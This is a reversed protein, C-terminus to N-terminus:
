YIGPVHEFARILATVGDAREVDVIHLDDLADHFARCSFFRGDDELHGRARALVGVVGVQHLQNLGGHFGATQGNGHMEVVAGIKLGAFAANVAAKGADHDVAAVQAKFFVDGQGAAHHLVRVVAVDGNLGLQAAQGAHFVIDLDGM